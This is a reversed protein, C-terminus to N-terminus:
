SVTKMIIIMITMDDGGKSVALVVGMGSPAAVLLGLTLSSVAFLFLLQDTILYIVSTGFSMLFVCFTLSINVQEAHFRDSLCYL